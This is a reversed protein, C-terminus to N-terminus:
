GALPIVLRPEHRAGGAGLHSQFLTVERARWPIPEPAAAALAEVLGAPRRRDRTRAVTLHPRFSHREPPFGAAVLRTELAAALAGLPGLDGHVALFAARPRRADPFAGGGRVELALPPTGAAAAALAASVEALRADEVDGLFRVTLHLAAPAVFRLDRAAPGLAARLGAAAAALRERTSPDPALAVFLRAVASPSPM